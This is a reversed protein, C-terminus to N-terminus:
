FCSSSPFFLGTVMIQLLRGGFSFALDSLWCWQERKGQEGPQWLRRGAGAVVRRHCLPGVPIHFVHIFLSVADGKQAKLNRFSPHL